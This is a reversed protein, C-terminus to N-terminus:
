AGFGNRAAARGAPACPMSFAAISRSSSRWIARCVLGRFLRAAMKRASRAAPYPQHLGLDAPHHGLGRGLRSAGRRAPDADAGAGGPDPTHRQAPDCGEGPVLQWDANGRRFRRVLDALSCAVLFYEQVFRLGTRMPASRRSVLVRTLSEAALTGALAGVFDGSSFEQFDFYDPAAAAWLRLTNITKGGYGVVPRDFPIGILTSPRGPVPQLRGDRMAFSCNLKVEVSEDRRPVEWPDQHRLWNDPEEHQWGNRLSQKFMGYEYRLGYGMAPLQMTAMSDLFCAALRGLGGNGLGADPEEEMFGLPDIKHRAAIEKAFPDLLLNTINNSLSRGILFEMSLYYIRKPKEREYTSETLIWRQSLVDRSRVHPQRSASARVPRTWLDVVDDFLLHREFLADNEGSFRIPGCGYQTLLMSAMESRKSQPTSM